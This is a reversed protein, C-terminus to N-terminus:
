VLTWPAMGCKHRLLPCHLMSLDGVPPSNATKVIAYPWMTQLLDLLQLTRHAQLLKFALILQPPVDLAMEWQWCWLEVEGEICPEGLCFPLTSAFFPPATGPCSSLPMLDPPRGTPGRPPPCALPRM